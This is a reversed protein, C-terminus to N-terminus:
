YRNGFAEESGLVGHSGPGPPGEPQQPGEPGQPEEEHDVGELLGYGRLLNQRAVVNTVVLATLLVYVMNKTVHTMGYGVVLFIGIATLNNQTLYGLLNVIALGLVAYLVFKNRMLSNLSKPLSLGKM